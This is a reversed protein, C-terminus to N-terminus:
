FRVLLGVRAILSTNWVAASDYGGSQSDNSENFPILFTDNYKLTITKGESSTGEFDSYFSSEIGVEAFFEVPEIKAFISGIRANFMPGSVRSFSASNTISGETFSINATTLNLGLASAIYLDKLEGDFYFKYAIGVIMSQIDFSWSSTVNAITYSRKAPTISANYSFWLGFFNRYFPSIYFESQVAYFERLYKLGTNTVTSNSQSVDKRVSQWRRDFTDSFRQGLGVAASFEFEMGYVSTSYFSGAALIFIFYHQRFRLSKM